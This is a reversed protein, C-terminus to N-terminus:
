KRVSSWSLVAQWAAWLVRETAQDPTVLRDLTGHYLFVPPDGASVHWAPSAEAYREPMDDRYGGMFRM